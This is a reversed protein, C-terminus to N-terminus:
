GRNIVAQLNPSTKRDSLVAQNFITWTLVVKGTGNTRYPIDNKDLWRRQAAPQERGTVEILDAQRLLEPM